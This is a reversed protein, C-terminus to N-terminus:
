DQQFGIEIKFVNKIRLNIKTQMNINVDRAYNNSTSSRLKKFFGEWPGARTPMRM